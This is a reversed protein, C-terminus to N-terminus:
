LSQNCSMGLIVTIMAMIFEKKSQFSTLPEGIPTTVIRRHIRQNGLRGLLGSGRYISTSDTVGDIMVDGGGIFTPVKSKITDHGLMLRLHSAESEVRDAQIWSDKLVYEVGDHKVVWVKTGRGLLSELIYIRRVLEYHVGDVNVATLTDSKLDRVFNPDLGIDSDNGFMLFALIKLFIRAPELGKNVLSGGSYRIQGERDTLTLSYSGSGNISLAPVFRRDFQLIFQLYSKANITGPFRSPYSKQQTVEAFSRIHLWNIRQPADSQLSIQKVHQHMEKDLLVLDPKRKFDADGSPPLNCTGHWWQRSNRLVGHGMGAMTNGVNNLWEAMGEETYSMGKFCNGKRDWYGANALVTLTCRDISFPLRETPFLREIFPDSAEVIDDKLEVALASGLLTSHVRTGPIQGPQQLLLPSSVSPSAPTAPSSHTTNHVAIAALFREQATPGLSPLRNMGTLTPPKQPKKSTFRKAPQRVDFMTDFNPDSTSNYSTNFSTNDHSFDSHLISFCSSNLLTTTDYLGQM